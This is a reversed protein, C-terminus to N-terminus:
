DLDCLRYTKCGLARVARKMARGHREMYRQAVKSGHHIVLEDGKIALRISEPAFWSNYAPVGLEKIITQAIEDEFGNGPLKAKVETAVVPKPKHRIRELNRSLDIAEPNTAFWGFLKRPDKTAPDELAVALFLFARAGHRKTCWLFTHNLSHASDNPFLGPLAAWISKAAEEVSLGAAEPDLAQKLKPSLDLAEAIAKSEQQILEADSITDTLAIPKSKQENEFEILDMCSDTLKLPSNLRKFELGQGSTKTKQTLLTTQDPQRAEHWTARRAAIRKDIARLLDPVRSLFPALDIAGGELPRNRRDYKRIILGAQELEGKLRRITPDKKGLAESAAANGPWVATEGQGLRRTDLHTLYFGLLCRAGDSLGPLGQAQARMLDLRTIPEGQYNAGQGTTDGFNDYRKAIGPQVCSGPQDDSEKPRLEGM